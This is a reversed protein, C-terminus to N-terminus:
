RKKKHPARLSKPISVERWSPHKTYHGSFGYEVLYGQRGSILYPEGTRVLRAWAVNYSVAASYEDYASMFNIFPYSRKYEVPTSEQGYRLIVVDNMALTDPTSGSGSSKSADTSGPLMSEHVLGQCEPRTWTPPLRREEREFAVCDAVQLRTRKKNVPNPTIPGTHLNHQRCLRVTLRSYDQRHENTLAVSFPTGNARKRELLGGGPCWHILSSYCDM